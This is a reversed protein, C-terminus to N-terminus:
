FFEPHLMGALLRVAEGLRPGARSLADAEAQTLEIVRGDAVARLGSWGPRAAVDEATVGFPSDLLLIVEPDQAVVFEPDVQPFAGMSAPVVNQGGAAILLDDVYSGPGATFPTPDIEVFVSPREVDALVSAV